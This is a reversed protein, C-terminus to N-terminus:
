AFKLVAQHRDGLLDFSVTYESDETPSITINESWDRILHGAQSHIGKKDAASFALAPIIKVMADKLGELCTDSDVCVSSLTYQGGSNAFGALLQADELFSDIQKITVQLQDSEFSPYSFMIEYGYDLM